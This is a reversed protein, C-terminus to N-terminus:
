ISAYLVTECIDASYHRIYFKYEPVLNLIYSPIELIDMPKHYLSIALKPKDHLITNKAGELAKLESGEIDMKIFTVKDEKSCLSDIDKASVTITGKQEVHSGGWIRGEDTIDEMFSLEEERNWAALNCLIINEWNERKSREVIMNYLSPMPELIYAKGKKSDGIWHLFDLSTSGDYGGADIFVEEESPTFVDFYQWGTFIELTGAGPMLIRKKDYGSEILQRYMERGYITSCIIVVSTSYRMLLDNVSIVPIGDVKTGSKIGNDCFLIPFYGCINLYKKTKKGVKGAGFLVIDMKSHFRSMFTDLESCNWKKATDFFDDELKEIDRNILYEMRIDFIKISEEDMLREKISDYQTRITEFYSM